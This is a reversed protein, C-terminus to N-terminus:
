ELPHQGAARLDCWIDRRIANLRDLGAWRM